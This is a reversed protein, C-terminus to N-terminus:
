SRHSHENMLKRLKDAIEDGPTAGEVVDVFEGDPGMLYFYASHDVLYDGGQEKHSEYYVRYAKAAAEIQARAGTLGVIRRDFSELYASTAQRTDREPDVTIFLPQIKEADGGLKELAAGFNSLATPCADPCRTYGFYVVMWKGRYTRDTATKGDTTELTFPGGIDAVGTSGLSGSLAVESSQRSYVIAALAVDIGLFLILLLRLGTRRITM